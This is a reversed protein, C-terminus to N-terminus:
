IHPSILPFASGGGGGGRVCVGEREKEQGGRGGEAVSPDDGAIWLGRAREWLAPAPPVGPPLPPVQACLSARGVGWRFASRVGRTGYLGCESRAGATVKYSLGVAKLVRSVRLPARARM